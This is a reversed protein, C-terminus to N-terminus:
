LEPSTERSILKGTGENVSICVNELQRDVYVSLFVVSKSVKFDIERGIVELRAKAESRLRLPSYMEYKLIM